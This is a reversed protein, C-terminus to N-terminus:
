SAAVNESKSYWYSGNCWFKIAGYAGVTITDFSSGGGGFGAAVTVKSSANTGTVILSIGTLASSAAPLTLTYAGSIKIFYNGETLIDTETLTTNETITKATGRLETYNFKFRSIKM